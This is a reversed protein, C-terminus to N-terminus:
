FRQGYRRAKAIIRAQRSIKEATVYFGLSSSNSNPVNSFKEAINNGTNRGHAVYNNFLVTKNELDIVWFRKQTSPLSFDVVTLINKKIKGSAMLNNYGKMALSFAEWSPIAQSADAKLITYVQQSDVAHTPSNAADIATFGCLMLMFFAIFTKRM